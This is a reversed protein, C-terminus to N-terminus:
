GPLVFGKLLARADRAGRDRDRDSAAASLMDAAAACRETGPADPTLAAIAQDRAVGRAAARDVLDMRGAAGGTPDAAQARAAPPISILTESWAMIKATDLHRRLDAGARDGPVICQGMMRAKRLGEAVIPALGLYVSDPAAALRRNMYPALELSVSDMVTKRIDGDRGQELGRSVAARLRAREVQDHAAIARFPPNGEMNAVIISTQVTNTTSLALSVVVFSLFGWSAVALLVIVVSPRGSQSMAANRAVVRVALWAFFMSLLISFIVYVAPSM